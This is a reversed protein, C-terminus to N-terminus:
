ITKDNAKAAFFESFAPLFGANMAINSSIAHSECTGYFPTFGKEIIKDKLLAVLHSAYGKGEYGSFVDVGIQMVYKGDRSAGAMAIIEDGDKIGVAIEDPQNESFIFANYFPNNERFQEIDNKEFWIENGWAKEKECDEKPLYYIHTDVIERGYEHLIYDITRLTPYEFLWEPDIDKLIEEFGDVTEEDAMVFAQGMIVVARFFLDMNDVIRAGNIKKSPALYFRESISKAEECNCDLKIQKIFTELHKKDVRM